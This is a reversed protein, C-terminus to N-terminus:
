EGSEKIEVEERSEATNGDAPGAEALSTHTQM